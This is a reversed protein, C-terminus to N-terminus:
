SKQAEKWEGARRILDVAGDIGVSSSDLSLHYNEVGGWKKNTYFNYYNARQKDKKVLFEAAKEPEIGYQDVIRDMRSFKDAFIFVSFLHPNERLIDDACRGVIVCPGKEAAKKILDSQISFLRDNVPLNESIEPLSGFTYNGMILSYLLSGSAKEDANQLVKESLGSEKAALAILAKDYFPIDLSQALRKGIERGASGYQRGITFITQNM